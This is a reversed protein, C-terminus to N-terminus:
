KTICCILKIWTCMWGHLRVRAQTHNCTHIAVHICPQTRPRSRTNNCAHIAAHMSTHMLWTWINWFLKGWEKASHPLNNQFIRVHSICAVMCAAMWAHLLVRLRGRMCGHMCAAMWVHSWVCLRTYLWMSPHVRVMLSQIRGGFLKHVTCTRFDFSWINKLTRNKFFFYM